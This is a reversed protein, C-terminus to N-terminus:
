LAERLKRNLEATFAAGREHAAGAAARIQEPPLLWISCGGAHWELGGCSCGEVQDVERPAEITRLPLPDPVKM